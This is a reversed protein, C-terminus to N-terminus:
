VGLHFYGQIGTLFMQMAITILILGMLREFAILGREGLWKSISASSLLLFTAMLWAIALSVLVLWFHHPQQEAILMVMAMAAPGAFLPIALPVLFPEGSTKGIEERISPFILRFAIIFLVFGGSMSLAATSIQLGKLIAKGAILFLLLIVFAFVAERFIIFFQRKPKIGKLTNLFVPVNGLPNM